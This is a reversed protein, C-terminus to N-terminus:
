LQPEKRYKEKLSEPKVMEIIKKEVKNEYAFKYHLWRIPFWLSVMIILATIIYGAYLSYPVVWDPLERKKHNHPSKEEIKGMRHKQKLKDWDWSM